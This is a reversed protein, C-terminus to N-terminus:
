KLEKKLSPFCLASTLFIFWLILERHSYAILYCCNFFIPRFIFLYFEFLALKKKMKPDHLIWTRWAWWKGRCIFYFKTLLDTFNCLLFANKLAYYKLLLLKVQYLLSSVQPYVYGESSNRCIHLEDETTKQYVPNDFHITNTNKLRWHRWVLVAGFVLLAM